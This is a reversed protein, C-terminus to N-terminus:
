MLPKDPWGTPLFIPGGRNVWHDAEFTQQLEELRARFENVKTFRNTQERGDPYRVIVVFESTDNDYRTDVRLSEDERDFFWIM